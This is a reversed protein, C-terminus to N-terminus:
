KRKNKRKGSAKVQLLEHTVDIHLSSGLLM